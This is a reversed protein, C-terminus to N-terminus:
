EDNQKRWGNNYGTMSTFKKTTMAANIPWKRRYIRAWLTGYSLGLDREWEAISKVEGKYEVLRNTRRNQGQEKVTAWRCNSPEYGKENNKRELSHKESPRAGMDSYFSEFDLWRQCVTIGRRGYNHYAPHKPDLCRGRMSRWARYEPAGTLGHKKNKQGNRRSAVKHSCGCSRSNHQLSNVSFDKIVGCDCKCTWFHRNAGSAFKKGAYTMVTLKGFKCGTLNKM